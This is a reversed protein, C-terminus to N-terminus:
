IYIYIKIYKYACIKEKKKKLSMEYWQQKEEKLISYAYRIKNKKIVDYIYMYIYM